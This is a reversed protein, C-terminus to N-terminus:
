AHFYRRRNQNTEKKKRKKKERQSLYATLSTESVKPEHRTLFRVKYLFEKTRM